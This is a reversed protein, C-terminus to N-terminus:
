FEARGDDLFGLLADVLDDADARYRGDSIQERLEDVRHLDSPDMQKLDAIFRELTAPDLAVDVQAAPHSQGPRLPGDAKGDSKGPGRGRDPPLNSMAPNIQM